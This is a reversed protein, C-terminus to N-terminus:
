ESKPARSELYALMDIQRLNDDGPVEANLFPIGGQMSISVVKGNVVDGFTLTSGIFTLADVVNNILKAQIRSGNDFLLHMTENNNTIEIGTLVDGHTFKTSGILRMDDAIAFIDNPFNLQISGVHLVAKDGQVSISDVKGEVFELTEGNMTFGMVTKGMLDTARQGQVQSFIEHLQASLFFDESIESVSGFPVDIIKGEGTAVALYVTSGQFRVSTVLGQEIDIREGST